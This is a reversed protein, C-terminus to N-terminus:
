SGASQTIDSMTWSLIESTRKSLKFDFGDFKKALTKADQDSMPDTSTAFIRVWHKEDDLKEVSVLKLTLGADTEIALFPRGEATYTQAKRVDDFELSEFTRAIRGIKDKNAISGEPVETMMLHEDRVEFEIEATEGNSLTAGIIKAEGIEFLSTDFWGDRAYPLKISGRVLYSQDQDFERVYSGGGVGGVSYDSKGVIIGAIENGDKGELLIRTGVGTESGPAALDLDGHREPDATKREEITLASISKIFDRVVDLDIPFGSADLFGAGDRTFTEKKSGDDIKIVDIQDVQEAVSPSFTKGRESLTDSSSWSISTTIALAVACATTGGLLSLSKLTM